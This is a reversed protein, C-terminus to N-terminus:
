TLRQFIKIIICAIFILISLHIFFLLFYKKRHLFFFLGFIVRLIWFNIQFIIHVFPLISNLVLIASKCSQARCSNNVSKNKVLMVNIMGGMESKQIQILHSPPDWLGVTHVAKWTKKLSMRSSCIISTM